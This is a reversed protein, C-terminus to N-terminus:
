VLVLERKKITKLFAKHDSCVQSLLPSSPPFSRSHLRVVNMDVRLEEFWAISDKEKLVSAIHICALAILHPPHLLILDTKYTDNVIGRCLKFPWTDFGVNITFNEGQEIKPEFVKELGSDV